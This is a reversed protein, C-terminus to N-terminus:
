FKGKNLFTGILEFFNVLLRINNLLKLLYNETRKSRKAFVIADPNSGLKQFLNM